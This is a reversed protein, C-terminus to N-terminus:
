KLLKKAKTNGNDNIWDKIEERVREVLGACNDLESIGISGSILLTKKIQETSLDTNLFDFLAPMDQISLINQKTKFLDIGYLQDDLSAKHLAARRYICPMCVGCHHTNKKTDWHMKRGRKGCSVSLKYSGKLIDKDVCSDVLEGKTKLMYPNVLKTTLGVKSLLEQLKKLYYPHTTRTSLTSSRSPTLPYNISITGNEPITLTDCNPLPEVCFVGIGIFLLSRSRYSVEKAFTNDNGDKNPISVCEQIRSSKDPYKSKLYEGLRGQDKSAGPSTPDFHSVLLAKKGRRLNNLGDISGVLSDLGGSFLTAFTYEEFKYSPISTKKRRPNPEFLKAIKLKSFNVTWYDGTLFTLLEELEDKVSSWKELNNVPFTVEIDRAWGDVSYENRALLNDIGYILSSVFFFDFAVSTTDPHLDWLHLFDTQMPVKRKAGIRDTFSLFVNAFAGEIPKTITIAVKM